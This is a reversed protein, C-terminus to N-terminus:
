GAQFGNSTLVFLAIALVPGLPHVLIKTEKLYFLIFHYEFITKLSYLSIQEPIKRWTRNKM